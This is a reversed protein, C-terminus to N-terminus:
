RLLVIKSDMGSNYLPTTDMATWCLLACLLARLILLNRVSERMRADEATAILSEPSKERVLSDHNLRDILYCTQCAAVSRYHSSLWWDVEQLQCAVMTRFQVKQDGDAGQPPEEGRLFSNRAEILNDVLIIRDGQSHISQPWQPRISRDRRGSGPNLWSWGISVSRLDEPLPNTRRVM